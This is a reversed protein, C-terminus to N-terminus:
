ASQWLDQPLYRARLASATRARLAGAEIMEELTTTAFTAPDTLLGAYEAGLRAYDSNAGPHVLVLRGWSWEGAPHQLM